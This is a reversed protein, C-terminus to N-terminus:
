LKSRLITNAQSIAQNFGDLLHIERFDDFHGWGDDGGYKQWVEKKKPMEEMIERLLDNRTQSLLESTFKEIAVLSGVGDACKCGVTGCSFEEYLRNVWGECYKIPYVYESYGCLVCFNVDRLTVDETTYHFSHSCKNEEERNVKSM